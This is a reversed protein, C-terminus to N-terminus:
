VIEEYLNQYERVTNEIRFNEVVAKRGRQGMECVKQPNEIARIILSAMAQPNQPPVLFGNSGNEIIDVVGDVETAIVAKQAALAELIAIGFPEARSSHVYLDFDKFLPPVSSQFGILSVNGELQNERLFNELIPRELGEGIIVLHANPFKVIVEAMARLLTLHDKRKHLNGVSGIIYKGQKKLDDLLLNEKEAEKDFEDLNIGNSIVRIKSEKVGQALLDSKVASSIAILHDAFRVTLKDIKRQHFKDVANQTYHQTIITRHCKELKGVISGVLSAHFLHTHVIDIRDSRVLGLLRFVIQPINHLHQGAVDFKPINDDILAQSFLSSKESSNFLNCYSISFNQRDYFGDMDLLLKEAGGLGYPSSILNLVKIMM